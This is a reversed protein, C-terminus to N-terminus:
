STVSASPRLRLTTVKRAAFWRDRTADSSRQEKTKHWGHGDLEVAVAAGDYFALFDLRYRRDTGRSGRNCPSSCALRASRTM